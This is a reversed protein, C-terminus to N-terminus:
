VFEAIFHIVTLAVEVTGLCGSETKLGKPSRSYGLSKDSPNCGLRSCSELTGDPVVSAKSRESAVLFQSNM